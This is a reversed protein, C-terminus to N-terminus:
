GGDMANTHALNGVLGFSIYFSILACKISPANVRESIFLVCFEASWQCERLALCVVRGKRETQRTYVRKCCSLNYLFGLESKKVDDM